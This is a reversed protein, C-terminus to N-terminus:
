VLNKVNNEFNLGDILRLTLAEVEDDVLKQVENDNQYLAVLAKRFFRRGDADRFNLALFSNFRFFAARPTRREIIRLHIEREYIEM